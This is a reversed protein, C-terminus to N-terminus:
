RQKEEWTGSSTEKAFLRHLCEEAKSAMDTLIFQGTQPSDLYKV